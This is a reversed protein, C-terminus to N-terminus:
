ERVDCRRFGRGDVEDWGRRHRTGGRRSPERAAGRAEEGGAQVIDGDGPGSNRSGQGSGDDDVGTIARVQGPKGQGKGTLITLSEAMHDAPQEASTLILADPAVTSGLSTAVGEGIVRASSIMVRPVVGLADKIRM